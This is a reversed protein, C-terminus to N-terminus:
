EDEVEESNSESKREDAFAGTHGINLTGKTWAIVVQKISNETHERSSMGARYKDIIQSLAKNIIPDDLKGPGHLKFGMINFSVTYTGKETEISIKPM